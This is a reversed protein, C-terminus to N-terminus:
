GEMGVGGVRIGGTIELEWTSEVGLFFGGVWTTKGVLPVTELIPFIRATPFGVTLAGGVFVLM